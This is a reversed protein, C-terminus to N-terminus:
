GSSNLPRTIYNTIPQGAALHAHSLLIFWSSFCVRLVDCTLTATCHGGKKNNTTEPIFHLQGGPQLHATPFLFSIASRGTPLKIDQLRIGGANFGRFCSQWLLSFTFGDRSLLLQDTGTLTQQQLHLQQLLQSMDAEELPVAGRKQYGLDTAHNKYGKAFGRVIQNGQQSHPNWDGTRGLLAFEKSLHSKVTVLSNPAAILEASSTASGAHNPLWQQVLFVLIDESVVTQMSKTPMNLRHLWSILETVAAHRAKNTSAKVAKQQVGAATQLGATYHHLSLQQSMTPSPAPSTATCCLQSYFSSIAAPALSQPGQTFCTCRQLPMNASIYLLMHSMQLQMYTYPIVGFHCEGAHIYTYIYPSNLHVPNDIQSQKCKDSDNLALKYPWTLSSQYYTDIINSVSCPQCWIFFIDSHAEQFTPFCSMGHLINTM